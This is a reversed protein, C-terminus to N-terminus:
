GKWVVTVITGQGPQSDISLEAGVAQAREFMIGLGLEGPEVDSTAFGIGNDHM